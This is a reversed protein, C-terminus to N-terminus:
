IKRRGHKSRGFIFFLYVFFCLFIKKKETIEASIGNVPVHERRANRLAYAIINDFNNKNM